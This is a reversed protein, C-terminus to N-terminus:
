NLTNFFLHGWALVTKSSVNQTSSGSIYMFLNGEKIDHWEKAQLFHSAGQSDSYVQWQISLRSDLLLYLVPAVAGM